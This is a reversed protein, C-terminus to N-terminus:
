SNHIRTGSETKNTNKKGPTNRWELTVPAQGTVVSKIMHILTLVVVVVVVVLGNGCDLGHDRFPMLLGCTSVRFVFVYVGCCCFSLCPVLVVTERDPVRVLRVIM